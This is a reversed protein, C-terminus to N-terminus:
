AAVLERVYSFGLSGGYRSPAAPDLAMCSDIHWDDSFMICRRKRLQLASSKIAYNRCFM